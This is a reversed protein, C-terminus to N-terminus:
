YRASLGPSKKILPTAVQEPKHLVQEVIQRWLPRALITLLSCMQDNSTILMITTM